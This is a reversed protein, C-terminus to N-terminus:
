SFKLAIMVADEENNTAAFVTDGGGLEIFWYRNDWENWEGRFWKVVTMEDMPRNPYMYEKFDAVPIWGHPADQQFVKKYDLELIYKFNKYYDQVTSAGHNITAIQWRAWEREIQTMGTKWTLYKEKWDEFLKIM